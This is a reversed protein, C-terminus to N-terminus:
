LLFAASAVAVPLIILTRLIFLIVLDMVKLPFGLKLIVVGTESMFILQGVALIAIIFRTAESSLEAGILAPLFMDAFGIVMAQGAVAADAVSFMDLVWVLPMALWQSIPTYEALLLGSTAIFMAAPLVGLWIELINLGIGEVVKSLKPAKEARRMASRWAKQHTTGTIEPELAQYKALCTDAKNSLPPIRPLIIACAVGSVILTAYFLYFHAMLNMTDVVVFAFTISVISFNTAIVAAERQTYFGSRMQNATVVLGVSSGGLWSAIADVASRGPVTFLRRFWKEAYSGLFEMLGFDTLFPLIICGLGIAVMVSVLLDNLVLGGMDGHWLWEPGMELWVMIAMITGAWRIISWIPSTHFIRSFTNDNQIHKGKKQYLLAGGCSIICLYVVFASLYNGVFDKIFNSAIGM